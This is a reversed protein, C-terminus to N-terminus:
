LIITRKQETRQLFYLGEVAAIIVCDAFVVFIKQKVYERIVEALVCRFIVFAIHRFPQGICQVTDSAVLEKDVSCVRNNGCASFGILMKGATKLFVEAFGGGLVYHIKPEAVGQIQDGCGVERYGIYAVQAAEIRRAIKVFVKQIFIFLCRNLYSLFAM